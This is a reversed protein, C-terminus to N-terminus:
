ALLVQNNRRCLVLLLFQLLGDTGDCWHASDESLPLSNQLDLYSYLAYFDEASSFGEYTIICWNESTQLTSTIGCLSLLSESLNPHLNYSRCALSCSVSRSAFSSTSATNNSSIQRKHYFFIHTPLISSSQLRYLSRSISDRAKFSIYDFHVHIPPIDPLQLLDSFLPTLLFVYPRRLNPSRGVYNSPYILSLYELYFARRHTSQYFRVDRSTRVHHQHQSIDLQQAHNHDPSNPKLLHYSNPSFCALLSSIHSSLTSSRNAPTTFLIVSSPKTHGTPFLLNTTYLQHVLAFGCGFLLTSFIGVDPQPLFSAHYAFRPYVIYYLVYSISFTWYFFSSIRSYVMSIVIFPITLSYWGAQSPLLLLITLSLIAIASPLRDLQSSRCRFFIYLCFVYALLPLFITQTSSLTLSSSQIPNIAITSFLTDLSHNNFLKPVFFPLSFIFCYKLLQLIEKSTCSRWLYLLLLPLILVTGLQASVAFILFVSTLIINRKFLCFLFLLIYLTSFCDPQGALYTIFFIVPSCWYLILIRMYSSTRSLIFILLLTFYDILLQFLSFLFNYPYFPIHLSKLISAIAPITLLPALVSFGFPFSHRIGSFQYFSIWPDITINEFTFALFPIYHSSVASPTYFLSVLFKILLPITFFPSYHLSYLAAYSNSRARFFLLLYSILRLYSRYMDGHKLSKPAHLM